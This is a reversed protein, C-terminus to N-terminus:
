PGEVNSQAGHLVPGTSWSQHSVKGKNVKIQWRAIHHERPCNGMSTSRRKCMAQQRGLDMRKKYLILTRTSSMISLSSVM